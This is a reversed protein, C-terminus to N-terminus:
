DITISHVSNNDDNHIYDIFGNKFVNEFYIGFAIKEAM